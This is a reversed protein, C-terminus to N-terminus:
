LSTKFKFITEGLKVIDGDHLEVTDEEIDQDNVFTGHASLEDKIKYKDARFLITAHKGSVTKDEVTINSDIDRGVVNRGEYIKYDIGLPDLSYTVLWGVLRRRNRYEKKEQIQGAENEEEVDDIFQTGKAIDNVSSKRRKGAVPNHSDFIETKTGRGSGGGPIIQTEGGDFNDPIVATSTGAAVGKGGKCFPCEKLDDKYWHGNPCKKFGDM